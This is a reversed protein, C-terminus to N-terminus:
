TEFDLCKSLLFCHLNHNHIFFIDSEVSVNTLPDINYSM